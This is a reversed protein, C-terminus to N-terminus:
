RSGPRNIARKIIDGEEHITSPATSKLTREKIENWLGNLFEYDKVIEIKTRKAGATRM